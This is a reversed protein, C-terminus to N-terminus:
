ISQCFYQWESISYEFLDDISQRIENERASSDIKMKMNLNYRASFLVWRFGQVIYKGIVSRRCEAFGDDNTTNWWMTQTFFFSVWDTHARIRDHSPVVWVSNRLNYLVGMDFPFCSCHRWRNHIGNMFISHWIRVSGDPERNTAYAWHSANWMKSTFPSPHVLSSKEALAPVCSVVSNDSSMSRLRSDNTQVCGYACVWVATSTYTCVFGQLALLKRVPVWTYFQKRSSEWQPSLIIVFSLRLRIHQCSFTYTAWAVSVLQLDIGIMQSPFSFINKKHFFYAIRKIMYTRHYRIHRVVVMRVFNEGGFPHSSPARSPVHRNHPVNETKKRATRIM